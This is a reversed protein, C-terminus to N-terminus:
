ENQLIIVKAKKIIQGKHIVAPEITEKVISHSINADKESSIVEVNMGENYKQNTYDRVEIDSKGLLRSLKAISNEVAKSQDEPLDTLSRTLKKELRWLEVAFDFLSETEPAVKIFKEKVSDRIERTLILRNEKITNLVVVVLCSITVLSILTLVSYLIAQDTFTM